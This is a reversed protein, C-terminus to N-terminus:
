NGVHEPENGSFHKYSSQRLGTRVQGMETESGDEGKSEGGNQEM